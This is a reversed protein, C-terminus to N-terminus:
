ANTPPIGRWERSWSKLDAYVEMAEARIYPRIESAQEATRHMLAPEYMPVSATPSLNLRTGAEALLAPLTAEVSNLEFLLSRARHRHIFDLILTNYHVWVRLATDPSEAAVPDGRRRLSDLVEFPDRFLFLWHAEPLLESWSTLFLVTRPDKFGWPQRMDRRAAICARASRLSSQPLVLPAGEAILGTHPLGLSSLAKQHIEVFDLDEFHGRPNGPFAGMLREGIALGCAQLAAATLSTGSRHMGSIVLVPPNAVSVGAKM